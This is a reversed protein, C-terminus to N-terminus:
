LYLLTQLLAFLALAKTVYFLRASKVVCDYAAYKPSVSGHM